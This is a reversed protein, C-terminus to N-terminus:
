LVRQFRLQVRVLRIFVSFFIAFILEQGNEDTDWNSQLAVCGETIQAAYM